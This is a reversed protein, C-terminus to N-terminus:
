VRSEAFKDVFLVDGVGSPAKHRGRLEQIASELTFDDPEKEKEAKVSSTMAWLGLQMSLADAIDDESGYPFSLLENRLASMWSRIFLSGSEFVPQLGMIRANKSRRNHTISEISFFKSKERMKERVWYNLSKQYAVAEIGVKVPNWKRVHEFILNVLRGPNCREQSYDLVYIKGSVVDKGATLVVNFDPVGKSDEPDGSPDVTTYVMLRTPDTEYYRFWEEKFIMDESRTPKNHYLCNYMYIGLGDKLTDLVERDFREPWRPDGNEDEIDIEFNKYRPENDYVWSLLDKEFWRTGVVLIQDTKQNVLLPQALRHWGIAKEVGEQTPCVSIERMDSIDPAVTDDEIILNYHRSTVQTGCGAAEFTCADLEKSRRVALKEAKWTCTKDPLLEPYMSRFLVNREFTGKIVQLKACANTFTNQVLLCRFLPDKTARWMPYAISCITSKLWGRPVLVRVRRNEPEQLMLCLDKHIRAELWDFGLVAKCFFYFSEDALERLEKIFQKSDEVM